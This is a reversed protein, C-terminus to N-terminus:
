GSCREDDRCAAVLHAGTDTELSKRRRVGCQRDALRKDKAKLFAARASGAMERVGIQM